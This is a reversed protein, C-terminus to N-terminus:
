ARAPGRRGFRLLYHTAALDLAAGRNMVPASSSTHRRVVSGAAGPVAALGCARCPRPRLGRGAASGRKLWYPFNEGPPIVLAMSARCPTIEASPRTQGRSAQPLDLRKADSALRPPARRSDIPERWAALAPAEGAPAPLPPIM